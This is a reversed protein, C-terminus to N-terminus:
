GPREFRWSVVEGDCHTGEHACRLRPAGAAAAEAFAAVGLRAEDTRGPSRDLAVLACSEASAALFRELMKAVLTAHEVEFVLDAALVVDFTEGALASDDPRRWDLRETRVSSALGSLAASEEALRLAGVDHDSLVVSAAGLAACAMGTLGVGSGLELVRKGRVLGPEAACAEAVIRASRWIRRGYGHGGCSAAPAERLLLSVGASAVEFSASHRGNGALAALVPAAADVCASDGRALLRTMSSASVAALEMAELMVAQPVAEIEALLAASMEAPASGSRGAEAYAALSKALATVDPPADKQQLLNDELTM